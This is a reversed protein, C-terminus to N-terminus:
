NWSIKLNIKEEQPLELTGAAIQKLTDTSFPTQKPIIRQIVIGLYMHSDINPLSLPSGITASVLTSNYPIAYPSSLLELQIEGCDNVTPVLYGIKYEAIDESGEQSSSADDSEIWAQLGTYTAGTENYLALIRCESKASQISNLSLEGFLNNLFDNPPISNSIFNGLSLYSVPQSQGPKSSNTYFLQM